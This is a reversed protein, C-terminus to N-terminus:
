FDPTSGSGGVFEALLPWRVVRQGSDVCGLQAM